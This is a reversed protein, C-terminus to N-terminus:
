TFPQPRNQGAGFSCRMWCDITADSGIGYQSLTKEPSLVNQSYGLGQLNVPLGPDVALMEQIEKVRTEGTVNVVFLGRQPVGRIFVQYLDRSLGDDRQRPKMMVESGQTIDYDTVTKLDELVADGYALVFSALPYRTDRSVLTRIDAITTQGCLEVTLYSANAEFRRIRISFHPPPQCHSFVDAALPSRSFSADGIAPEVSKPHLAHPLKTLSSLKLHLAM